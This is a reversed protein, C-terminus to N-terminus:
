KKQLRKLAERLAKNQPDLALGATYQQAAMDSRGENEYLKGLYEYASSRAPLESNDPVTDVYTRLDKEAVELDKKELVLAVGRYYNLRRDSPAIKAAGAIAQEMHESESRDRYYDAAEFYAEIRSPSLKLIKQYQESAEEFKKRAVYLDAQGLMGEVADVASLARIQELAREEGGGLNAPASAMFAILDRQARTNGPDLQVAVEFEHHTKRALSLAGAMNSHSSQDAKLGYARGLWDHYESRPDLAVAREWGSIAHNLDHSEFYCRGLWYYLSADKPNQAVASELVSAARSYGGSDYLARVEPPPADLDPPTASLHRVAVTAFLLAILLIQVDRRMLKQKRNFMSLAYGGSIIM